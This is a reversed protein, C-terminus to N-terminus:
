SASGPSSGVPEPPRITRVVTPEESGIASPTASHSGDGPLITVFDVASQASAAHRDQRRQLLWEAVAAVAVLLL